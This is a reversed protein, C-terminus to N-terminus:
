RFREHYGGKQKIINQLYQKAKSLQSKSTGESIGLLAAIEKHSMEEMVYLNFVTRYGAPLETISRFLEAASLKDIAEESIGIEEAAQENNIILQGKKRLFMLCENVMIKRLWPGISGPGNYVFKNVQSLFKYFGNLMLEEADAHTKVYRTCVALMADAYQDFLLKQAKSQGERCGQIVLAEDM